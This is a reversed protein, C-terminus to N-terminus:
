ELPMRMIHQPGAEGGHFLKGTDEFGAAQYIRYAGPNRCNVTLVISPYDPYHRKLYGGLAQCAAKGYGKGQQRSDIFFSRLGLEGPEAFERRDGYSVDLNFFGVVDARDLIAHFHFEPAAVEYLEAMTSVFANQEPVVALHEVLHWDALAIRTFHIM